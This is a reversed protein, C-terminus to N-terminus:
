VFKIEKFKFGAQRVKNLIEESHFSLERKLSPEFVKVFLVDRKWFVEKVLDKGWRVRCYSDILVKVKFQLYQIAFNRLEPSKILLGFIEKVGKPNKGKTM